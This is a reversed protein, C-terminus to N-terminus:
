RTESPLDLLNRSETKNKIPKYNIKKIVLCNIDSYPTSTHKYRHMCVNTHTCKHAQAQLYIALQSNHMQRKSKKPSLLVTSPTHISLSHFPLSFFCFGNPQHSPFYLYSFSSPSPSGFGNQGVINLRSFLLHNLVRSRISGGYLLILYSLCTSLLPTAGKKGGNKLWICTPSTSEKEKEKLRWGGM